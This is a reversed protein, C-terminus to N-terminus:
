FLNGLQLLLNGLNAVHEVHVMADALSREAGDEQRWELAVLFDSLGLALEESDFMQNRRTMRTANFAFEFAQQVDPLNRTITERQM